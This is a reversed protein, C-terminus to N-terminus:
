FAGGDAQSGGGIIYWFGAVYRFTAFDGNAFTHTAGMAPTLKLGGGGGVTVSSSFLLTVTRGVPVANGLFWNITTAGSVQVFDSYQPLTITDAATVSPIGPYNGSYTLITTESHEYTCNSGIRIYPHNAVNIKVRATTAGAFHVADVSLTSALDTVCINAVGSCYDFGGGTMHLGGKAMIVDYQTCGWSTFDSVYTHYGIGTNNILIGKERAAAQCGILKTGDSTGSIEFGIHGAQTNGGDAGCSILQVNGTSHIRFGRYYGYCFCDTIKAWDGGTNYLGFAEGGRASTDFDSWSYHTTLYNWAECERLYNISWMNEFRLGNTCDIKIRQLSWRENNQAPNPVAAYEFGLIMLNELLVDGCPHAPDSTIATGAFAAIGSLAASKSGFPLLAAIDRNIVVANRFASQSQMVISAADALLLTSKMDDFGITQTNGDVPEGSSYWRGTLTVGPTVNLDSAIYHRGTFFVEGGGATHAADIASQIAATDDTVGDGVAGYGSAFFVVGTIAAKITSFQVKFEKGESLDHVMFLDGDAPSGTQPNLQDVEVTFIDPTGTTTSLRLTKRDLLMLAQGVSNGTTPVNAKNGRKLLIAM